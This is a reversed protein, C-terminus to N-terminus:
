RGFHGIKRFFYIVCSCRACSLPSDILSSQLANPLRRLGRGGGIICWWSRWQRGYHGRRDDSCGAAALAAARWVLCRRGHRREGSAAREEYYVVYYVTNTGATFRLVELEVPAHTTTTEPLYCIAPRLRALCRLTRSSQSGVLFFQTETASKAKFFARRARRLQSVVCTVVSVYPSTSCVAAALWQAHEDGSCASIRHSDRADSGM